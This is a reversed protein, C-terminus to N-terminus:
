TRQCCHWSNYTSKILHLCKTPMGWAKWVNLATMVITGIPDLTILEGLSLASGQDLKSQLLVKSKAKSGKQTLKEKDNFFVVPPAEFTFCWHVGHVWRNLDSITEAEPVFIDGTNGSDSFATIFDEYRKFCHQCTQDGDRIPHAGQQLNKWLM